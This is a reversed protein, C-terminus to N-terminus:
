ELRKGCYPCFAWEPEEEGTGWCSRHVRVGDMGIVMVHSSWCAECYASNTTDSLKAGCDMCESM